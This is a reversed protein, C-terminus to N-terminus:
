RGILWHWGNPMLMVRGGCTMSALTRPWCCRVCVSSSCGGWNMWGIRPLRRHSRTVRWESSRGVAGSLVWAGGRHSLWAPRAPEDPDTGTSQLMRPTNGIAEWPLYGTMATFAENVYLIRPGGSALDVPEAETVVVSDKANAM